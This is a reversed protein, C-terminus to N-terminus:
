ILDTLRVQEGLSQIKTLTKLFFLLFFCDFFSFFFVSKTDWIEVGFCSQIKKYISLWGINIVPIKILSLFNNYM